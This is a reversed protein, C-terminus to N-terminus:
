NEKQKETASAAKNVRGSSDLVVYGQNTFFPIADRHKTVVAGEPSRLQVYESDAM